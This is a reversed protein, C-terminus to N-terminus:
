PTEQRIVGSLMGHFSHRGQTKNMSPCNSPLTLLVMENLLLTGNSSSPSKRGKVKMCINHIFLIVWLHIIIHSLSLMVKLSVVHWGGVKFYLIGTRVIVYNRAREFKVIVIRKKRQTIKTWNGGGKKVDKSKYKKIWTYNIYLAINM